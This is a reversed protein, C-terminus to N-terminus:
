RRGAQRLRRYGDALLGLTVEPPAGWPEIDRATLIPYASSLGGVGPTLVAIVLRGIDADRIAYSCMFCPENTTYLCAQELNLRLKLAERVVILEAHAFRDDGAPTLEWAESVVAGDLAILSGVPTNGARQAKAALELCRLMMSEAFRDPM